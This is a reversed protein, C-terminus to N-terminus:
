QQVGLTAMNKAKLNDGEYIELQVSQVKFDPELQLVGSNRQFREFKIQLPDNQSGDAPKIQVTKEQNNLQGTIVFQMYGNFEPADAKVNRTLLIKYDLIDNKQEAAFARITVSGAPGAPVLQEYFSLQDRIDTLEQQLNLIQGELGKDTGRLLSAESQAKSLDLQLQNIQQDQNEITTQLRLMNDHDDAHMGFHMTLAGAIFVILLFLLRTLLRVFWTSIKGSKKDSAM